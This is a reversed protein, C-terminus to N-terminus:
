MRGDFFRLYIANPDTRLRCTAAASSLQGFQEYIAPPDALIGSPDDASLREDKFPKAPQVVADFSPAVLTPM